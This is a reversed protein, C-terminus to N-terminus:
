RRPMPWTPSRSRPARGRGTEGKAADRVLVRVREGAEILTRATAAGTNGSVGAVVYM